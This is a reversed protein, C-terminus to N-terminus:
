YGDQEETLVNVIAKSIPLGTEKEIWVWQGNPNIELFFFHNEKDIVLDIAAFNLNLKKCMKLCSDSINKPLEFRKWKSKNDYTRWDVNDNSPLSASFIKDGVVTVRIDYSKKIEKQLLIPVGNVINENINFNAPIRQTFAMKSDNKDQMLGYSISKMVCYKNKNLWNTLLIPDSSILTAPVKLGIETALRLNKPKSSAAENSNPHNMWTADISELVSRLGHLIERNYFRNTAKSNEKIPSQPRRVIVSSINKLQIKKQNIDEIWGQKKIPNLNIKPFYNRDICVKSINKKKLAFAKQIYDSTPDHKGTLIITIGM